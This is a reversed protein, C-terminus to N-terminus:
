STEIEPWMCLSPSGSVFIWRMGEEVGELSHMRGLYAVGYVLSMFACEFSLLATFRTIPDLGAEPIQLFTLLM